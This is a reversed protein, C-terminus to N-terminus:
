QGGSTLPSGEFPLTDPTVRVATTFKFPYKFGSEFVLEIFYATWGKQPREVRAVYQGKGSESLEKSKYEPGLTDLRFDRAEPNTAQWLNVAMPKQESTVSIAGDSEFKWSFKPRPRGTLVSQYFAEISQRADSGELSHKANPVYRLYKEGKLDDFYFQSSDPLFFEDGAANVLYKPMTLRDIYSYPDELKLLGAYEPADNMDMVKHHVYDGVAPAWFGYADHHHQMSRRVNLVDIVVPIIAVVRKDVAGTLWTTWGRKSGGAVVFSEIPLNGGGPTAMLASITDMARVASKVMPMRATWTPDGTKMLKIWTYAILDDEVREAGDQNFVLPQNPVMKLEAVVSGTDVATQVVLPNASKPAKDANKGGGINLFATKSRVTDPKVVLLWHEWLTRNVDKETRWTQSKLDVVFTTYGDGPITNVVKWAYSADPKHIYADLATLTPAPDKAGAVAVLSALVCLAAPLFRM